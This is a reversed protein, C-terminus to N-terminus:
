SNTSSTTLFRDILGILADPSGPKALFASFGARRASEEWRMKAFASLAIAPMRRTINSNQRTRRMFSLGDENPM